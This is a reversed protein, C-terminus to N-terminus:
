RGKLREASKKIQGSLFIIEDLDKQAKLSLTADVVNAEKLVPNNVFGFILNSLESLSSRLRDPTPKAPSGSHKSRISKALALNENLRRARKRIESASKAIFGADIEGAKLIARIVEKNVVQVQWFDERIEQLVLQQNRGSESHPDRGLAAEIMEMQVARQLKRQFADDRRGGGAPSGGGDQGYAGQVSAICLLFLTASIRMPTSQLIWSPWKNTVAHESERTAPVIWSIVRFPVFLRKARYRTAAVLAIGGLRARQLESNAV